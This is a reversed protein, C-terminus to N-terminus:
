FYNIQKINQEYINKMIKQTFNKKQSFNDDKRSFSCEGVWFFKLKYKNLSGGHRQLAEHRM